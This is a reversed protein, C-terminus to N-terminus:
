LLVHVFLPSSRAISKAQYQSQGFVDDLLHCCLLAQCLWFPMKLNQVHIHYGLSPTSPIHAESPMTLPSSIGVSSAVLSYEYSVCYFAIPFRSGEEGKRVGRNTACDQCQNGAPM